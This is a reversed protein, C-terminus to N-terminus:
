ADIMLKNLLKIVTWNTPCKYIKLGKFPWYYAASWDKFSTLAIEIYDLYCLYYVLLDNGDESFECRFGQKELDRILQKFNMTGKNYDENYKM